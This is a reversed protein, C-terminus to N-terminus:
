DLSYTQSEGSSLRIALTGDELLFACHDPGAAAALVPQDFTFDFGSTHGFTHFFVEGDANLAIVANEGATLRQVGSWHPVLATSSYTNGEADVAVAYGRSVAVQTWAGQLNISPHSAMIGEPTKVLLGYSGAWITQAGFVEELFAYDQYGLSMVQGNELLAFSAYDGAAIAKVGTLLDTETQRHTNDGCALVRGDATLGLTHYAGAAVYVVDKWEQVDLQGYSNDGFARVTGDDLLVVTHDFGAAMRGEAWLAAKEPEPAPTATPVPTAQAALYEEYAAQAKEYLEMAPAYWRVQSATHAARAYDGKEYLLEAKRYTYVASQSQARQRFSAYAESDKEQVSELLELAMDVEGGTYVIGACALVSDYYFAEDELLSLGRLQEKMLDYDGERATDQVSRVALTPQIISYQWVGAVLVAALLVSLVVAWIVFRKNSVAPEGNM